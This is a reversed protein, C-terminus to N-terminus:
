EIIGSDRRKGYRGSLIRTFYFIQNILPIFDVSKVEPEIIVQISLEPFLVYISIVIDVHSISLSLNYGFHGM